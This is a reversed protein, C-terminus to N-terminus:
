RDWYLKKITYRRILMYTSTEILLVYTNGSLKQPLIETEAPIRRSYRLILYACLFTVVMEVFVLVSALAASNSDLFGTIQKFYGSIAGLVPLLVARLFQLVLFITVTIRGSRTKDLLYQGLVFVMVAYLLPYFMVLGFEDAINSSFAVCIGFAVMAAIVVLYILFRKM